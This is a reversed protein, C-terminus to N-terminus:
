NSLCIHTIGYCYHETLGRGFSLVADPDGVVIGSCPMGFLSPLPRRILVGLAMQAATAGAEYAQKIKDDDCM